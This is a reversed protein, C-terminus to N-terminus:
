KTEEYPKTDFAFSYNHLKFTNDLGSDYYKLQVWVSDQSELNIKESESIPNYSKGDGVISFQTGTTSYEDVLEFTDKLRKQVYYKGTGVRALDITFGIYIYKGLIAFDGSLTYSSVDVVNKPRLITRNLLSMDGKTRRELVVDQYYPTNSVKNYALYIYQGDVKLVSEGITNTDIRKESIYSFTSISFKMLRFNGDDTVWVHTEDATIGSPSFFNTTGTGLEGYSNVFQLKKNKFTMKVIRDNFNDTVFLDDGHIAMQNVTNFNTTGSGLGGYSSVIVSLNNRDLMFLRNSVKDFAFVYNESAEGNMYDIINPSPISTSNILSFDYGNLRYIGNNGKYGFVFIEKPISAKVDKKKAFQGYDMFVDISFSSDAGKDRSLILQRYDKLNMVGLNFQKSIYFANIPNNTGQIIRIDDISVTSVAVSTTLFRIGYITLCRSFPNDQIAPDNWSSPFTFTSLNVKIETWDGLNSVGNTMGLDVLTNSSFTVSSHISTFSSTTAEYQLDITFSSVVCLSSIRLKFSLMDVNRNVQSGDYWEGFPILSINTMSSVFNKNADMYMKLSGSGEIVTTTDIGPTPIWGDTKDMTFLSIEKRADDNRINLDAKYVYGDNSDGYVLTGDDGTGSFTALSDALWNKQPWWEGTQIDYIFVRNPKDAPTYLPDCSSFIYWQKKPYYVASAKDYTNYTVTRVYDTNILTSIPKLEDVPYLRKRQGGDFYVLGNKTPVIDYPGVNVLARPSICGFGNAVNTVSIDGGAEDLNLVKYLISSVSSPKYVTIYSGDVGGTATMGSISEGDDAKINIFRSATFSSIQQFLSYQVRSGYYTTGSTLEQTCDLINGFVLYGNTSLVYKAKLNMNNSAVTVDFLGSFSDKVIDYKYVPDTLADGTMVIKGAVNAFTFHQDWTKLGSKLLRWVPSLDGTSVYIRDWTTMLIVKKTTTGLDISARYVSTIPHSSVAQNIYRDSGNRKSASGFIDGVMNQCDVARNDQIETPAHVHDVGGGFNVPSTVTTASYAFSSVSLFSFLIVSKVIKM